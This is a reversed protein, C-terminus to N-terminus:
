EMLYAYDLGDESVSIEFPKYGLRRFYAWLKSAITECSEGEFKVLGVDDKSYAIEFHKNILKRVIFFELERECHSVEFVVAIKFTHAHNNRLFAVEDPAEKYYHTGRVDTQVKIYLKVM